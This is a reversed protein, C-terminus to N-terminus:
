KVLARIADWDLKRITQAIANTVGPINSGEFQVYVSRVEIRSRAPRWFADNPTSMRRTSESETAMLSSGIDSNKTFDIFAPQKREAASMVDLEARIKNPISVIGARHADLRARDKDRDAKLQPALETDEKEYAKRLEAVAEPGAISVMALAQAREKKREESRALWQEYPTTELEKFATATKEGNKGELFFLYAKYYEERTVRFWPSMQDRTFLISGPGNPGSGAEYVLTAGAVYITVNTNPKTFTQADGAELAALALLLAILLPRRPTMESVLQRKM